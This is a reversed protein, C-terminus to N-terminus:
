SFCCIENLLQACEGTYEEQYDKLDPANYFKGKYEVAEKGFKEYREKRELQKRGMKARARQLLDDVSEDHVTDYHLLLEDMDDHRVDCYVCVCARAYRIDQTFDRLWAQSAGGRGAKRPKSSGAQRVQKVGGGQAGASSSSTSNDVLVHIEKPRTANSTDTQSLVNDMVLNVAPWNVEVVPARTSKSTTESESKVTDTTAQAARPDNTIIVRM